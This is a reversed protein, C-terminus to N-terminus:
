RCCVAKAMTARQTRSRNSATLSSRAEGLAELKVDFRIERDHWDLDNPDKKGGGFLEQM